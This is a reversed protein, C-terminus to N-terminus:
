FQLACTTEMREEISNEDTNEIIIGLTKLYDKLEYSCIKSGELENSVFTAIQKIKERQEKFQWINKEKIFEYLEKYNEQNDKIFNMYNSLTPLKETNTFDLLSFVIQANKIVREIRLNSNFIRFEITKSNQTNLATYRCDHEDPDVIDDWKSEIGKIVEKKTNILGDDSMSCWRDLEYERRQTLSLWTQKQKRTKPYLLMVLKQLQEATIANKSVHIHIGGKNHARFGERALYSFGDKLKPIFEEYFYKRTMPHTVIEFGSVSGDKKMYLDKVNKGYAAIFGPACSQSGSVEIELGFYEVCNDEDYTKYFSPYPKYSYNFIRTNSNLCDHCYWSEDDEDGSWEGADVETYFLNGCADCHRTNYDCCESCLQYGNETTRLDSTRIAEDCHDCTSYHRDFCEDCVDGNRTSHSDSERVFYGCEDCIFWDDECNQCLYNSHNDHVFNGSCHLDFVLLDGCDNCRFTHAMPSVLLKEGDYNKAVVGESAKFYTNSIRCYSM